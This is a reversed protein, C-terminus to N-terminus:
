VPPRKGVGLVEVVEDPVCIGTVTKDGQLITTHFRM